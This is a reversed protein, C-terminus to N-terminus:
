KVIAHRLKVAKAPKIRGELREMPLCVSIATDERGLHGVTESNRAGHEGVM